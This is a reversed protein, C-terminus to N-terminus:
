RRTTSTPVRASARPTRSKRLLLGRFSWYHDHGALLEPTVLAQQGRPGWQPRPQVPDEVAAGSSEHHQAVVLPHLLDGGAAELQVHVEGRLRQPFQGFEVAGDDEASVQGADDRGPH